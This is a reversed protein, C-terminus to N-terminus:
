WELNPTQQQLCDSLVISLLALSSFQPFLIDTAEIADECQHSHVENVPVYVLWM